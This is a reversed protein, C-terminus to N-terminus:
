TTSVVINDADITPAQNVNVQVSSSAAVASTITRSTVTQSHLVTYVGVGGPTGSNQLTIRTGALIVGAADSITQGVALTGSTVASVTLTSGAISGTVVASSSNNSGVLITSVQAWSGLAEVPAVFRTALLALGIRARQKGDGGSFASVIAAQVQAAADAPITPGNVLTVAFLVPLGTPREFKIQYPIPASFLPNSDYATVTTNGTLACGGGKKSLIAQAVDLDLGGSACVYVSHAAISVGGVTVPAATGNDYAYYDLVGEVQAVAGVISGAAGFSNGAVTAIRRAEFADRGEVNQGLVGSVVTAADWGPIAQYISVGDSDPVAVPGPLKNAFSLTVSGTVPITGEGSCTYLNGSTDQIVADVPIVTGALGACAVQLVTPEAPLRELFYLRAIADQMRGTAYAPDTQNAYYCFLAYVNDVVAAESSALQGQPTTLAYSLTNGFAADIDAQVGALVASSEPPVFGVATFTPEPVSTM